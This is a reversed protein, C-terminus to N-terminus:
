CKRPRRRVGSQRVASKPREITNATRRASRVVFRHADRLLERLDTRTIRSLRVLVTPHPAYHDTIYYIDPQQRLMEARQELDIRV